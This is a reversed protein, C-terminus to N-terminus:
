FCVWSFYLVLSWGRANRLYRNHIRVKRLVEMSSFPNLLFIFYLLINERRSPPSYSLYTFMFSLFCVFIYIIFELWLVTNCFESTICHNPDSYAHCKRANLLLNNDSSSSYVIACVSKWPPVSGRKQDGKRLIQCPFFFNVPSKALPNIRLKYKWYM